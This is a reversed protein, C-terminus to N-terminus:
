SPGGPMPSRAQFLRIRFSAGAAANCAGHCLPEEIQVPFMRNMAQNQGAAAVDPPRPRGADTGPRSRSRPDTGARDWFVRCRRHDM